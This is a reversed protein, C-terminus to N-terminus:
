APAWFLSHLKQYRLMFRSRSVVKVHLASTIFWFPSVVLFESSQYSYSEQRQAGGVVLGCQFTEM